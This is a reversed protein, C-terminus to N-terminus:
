CVPPFLWPVPALSKPEVLWSERSSVELEVGLALAGMIVLEVKQVDGVKVDTFGSLFAVVAALFTLM